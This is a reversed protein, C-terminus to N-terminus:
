HGKLSVVHAGDVAGALRPGAALFLQNDQGLAALGGLLHGVDDLHLDPRDIFVLSHDLGVAVATAAFIVADAEGDSLEHVTAPPGGRSSFCRPVGEAPPGAQYVCTTSLAALRAAFGDARARDHELSRLFPVVFSYKRPEKGARGIRQEATGLGAFPATTPIRRSAAFYELKGQARDHSYRELVARLGEDAECRARAALFIVEAELTASSTGAYVQEAADLHFTIRIKAANGPGIWREGTTPMGYSGIAEKAAILAELVRTKGSGSPGTVVVTGHPAGTRPDTLDLTADGVGRIGLFTARLIKM